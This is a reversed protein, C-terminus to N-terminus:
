GIEGDRERKGERRRQWEDGILWRALPWGKDEAMFSEPAKTRAKLGGGVDPSLMKKASLDGSAKHSGTM